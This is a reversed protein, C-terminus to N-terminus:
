ILEGTKRDFGRILFHVAVVIAYVTIMTSVATATTPPINKSMYLLISYLDRVTYAFLLGSRATLLPFSSRRSFWLVAATLILAAIGLFINAYRLLHLFQDYSSM